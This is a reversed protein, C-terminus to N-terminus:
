CGTEPVHTECPKDNFINKLIIALIQNANTNQPTRVKNMEVKKLNHITLTHMGDRVIV